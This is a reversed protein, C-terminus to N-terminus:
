HYIYHTESVIVITILDNSIHEENLKMLNIADDLRGRITLRTIWKWYDVPLNEVKGAYTQM